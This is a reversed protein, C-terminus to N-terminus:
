TAGPPFDFGILNTADPDFLLKPQAKTRLHKYLYDVKTTFDSIDPRHKRIVDNHSADVRLTLDWRLKRPSTLSYPARRCLEVSKNLHITEIRSIPQRLLGRM